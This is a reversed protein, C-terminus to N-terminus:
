PAHRSRLAQRSTGTADPIQENGPRLTVPRTPVGKETVTYATITSSGAQGSGFLTNNISLVAAQLSNCN